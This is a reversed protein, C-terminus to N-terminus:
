CFLSQQGKNSDLRTDRKQEDQNVKNRLLRPEGVENNAKKSNAARDYHQLTFNEKNKVTRYIQREIGCDSFLWIVKSEKREKTVMRDRFQFFTTASFDINLAVIFEAKDLKIGERGSVFQLAISKNSNNFEELDTTINPLELLMDLEAKFKYFIAIKNNAYNNRIYNVKSKDLIISEGEELKCTGSGLQHIKQMEKVSTDALIVGKSGKVVKDKKLKEIILKTKDNMEINIIQESKDVNIGAEIQTISLFELQKLDYNCYSYDNVIGHPLRKQKIDCNIKAWQYFNYGVFPSKEGLIYMQHFIQSNSEPTPTGSLFIVSSHLHILEKLRKAALSPKPFSGLRHSEDILWVDIHKDTNLKHLSEYNVVEVDISSSNLLKIDEQISTIAKKKTVFVVRKKAGGLRDAIGLATLTKGTRVEMALYCWRRTLCQLFGKDIIDKQYPRFKLKTM